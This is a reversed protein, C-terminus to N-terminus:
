KNFDDCREHKTEGNVYLCANGGNMAPRKISYTQIRYGTKTDCPSTDKWEGICSIPCKIDLKREQGDSFPCSDGGNISNQIVNYTQSKYGTSENCQEVSWKGICPVKCETNGVRSEGDKYVCSIGGNLNTQLIKYKQVKFGTSPDCVETDVWEGMCDVKCLTTGIMTDGDKFECVDGGNLAKQIINYRKIKTGTLPDCQDTDVWEGVCSVSCKKNTLRIAGNSFGCKKGDNVPSQLIRYIQIRYGTSKDIDSTDVWDGIGDIKRNLLEMLFYFTFLLSIFFLFLLIIIIKKINYDNFM